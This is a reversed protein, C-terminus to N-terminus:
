STLAQLNADTVRTPYYALKKITGNLYGGSYTNNGIGLQNVVPLNGSTDTQVTGANAVGAFDNVKYVGITKYATGVVSGTVLTLSAQTVSNVSVDFRV